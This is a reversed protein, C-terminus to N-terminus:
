DIRPTLDESEQDLDDLDLEDDMDELPRKFFGILGKRDDPDRVVSVLEWELEGFSDLKHRDDDDRRLMGARLKLVNYEWEPM